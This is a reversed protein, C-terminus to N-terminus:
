LKPLPLCLLSFIGPPLFQSAFARLYSPIQCSEKGGPNVKLTTGLSPHEEVTGPLGNFIRIMPGLQPAQSGVPRFHLGPTPNQCLLDWSTAPMEVDRSEPQGAQPSSPRTARRLNSHNLSRPRFHYPRGATDLISSSIPPRSNLAQGKLPQYM